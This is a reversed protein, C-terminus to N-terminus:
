WGLAGGALAALQQSQVQRQPGLMAAVQAPGLSPGPRGGGLSAASPNVPRATQQYYPVDGATRVYWWPRMGEVGCKLQVGPYNSAQQTLMPVAYRGIQESAAVNGFPRWQPAGAIGGLGAGPVPVPALTNYGYPPTPAAKARRRM